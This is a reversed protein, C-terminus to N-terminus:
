GQGPCFEGLVRRVYERTERYPPIGHAQEVTAAGANYAALALALSKFRDLLDRLHRSGGRLNEAPDFVDRVRHDAAAAPMLQTLGSAGARSVAWPDFGSEAEVLAALLRPHLDTARAANEIESRFPTSAPLTEDAWAHNCIVETSRDAPEEEAVEDAIVRDIRVAPVEIRGGGPLELVIADRDLYADVVKLVRGDVFVALEARSAAPSVLVALLALTVTLTPRRM